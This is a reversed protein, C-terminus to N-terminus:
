LTDKTTAKTLRILEDTVENPVAISLHYHAIRWGEETMEIVGSGRCTGMWTDLLEDFWAMQGNDYIYINRSQAKFDWAKGREFYKKSWIAFEETTWYETPDTGIYIGDEKMKEFYAMDANAADQHWQDIFTNATNKLDLYDAEVEASQDSKQECGTSLCITILVAIYNKM